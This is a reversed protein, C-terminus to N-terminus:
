ATQTGVPQVIQAGDHQGQVRQTRDVSIADGTRPLLIGPPPLDFGLRVACCRFVREVGQEPQRARQWARLVGESPDVVHRPAVGVRIPAPRGLIPQGDSGILGVFGILGAVALCAAIIGAIALMTDPNM